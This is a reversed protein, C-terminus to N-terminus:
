PLDYNYELLDYKETGRKGLDESYYCGKLSPYQKHFEDYTLVELSFRRFNVLRGVGTIYGEDERRYTVMLGAANTFRKMTSIRYGEPTDIYNTVKPNSPWIPRKFYLLTHEVDKGITILANDVTNCGEECYVRRFVAIKGKPVKAKFVFKKIGLDKPMIPRDTILEPGGCGFLCAALAMVMALKIKMVYLANLTKVYEM